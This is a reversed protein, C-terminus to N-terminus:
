GDANFDIMDGVKLRNREAKGSCLELVGHAGKVPPVLHWPKIDAIIKVVAGDKNLFVADFAFRMFCSHISNAKALYLGEDEGLSKQFMLGKLRASFTVAKRVRACLVNKQTKNYASYIKEAEQGM